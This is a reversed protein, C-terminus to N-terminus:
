IQQMGMKPELRGAPVANDLTGNPQKYLYRIASKMIVLNPQGARNVKICRQDYWEIVGHLVEGSELVVVMPTRARMQKLYYFSEAKTNELLPPQQQMEDRASM